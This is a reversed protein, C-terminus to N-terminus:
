DLLNIIPICVSTKDVAIAAAAVLAATNAPGARILPITTPIGVAPPVKIKRFPEAPVITNESTIGALEPPALVTTIGPSPM